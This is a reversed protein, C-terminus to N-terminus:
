FFFLFILFGLLWSFIVEKLSLGHSYKRLVLIRFSKENINKDSTTTVVEVVIKDGQKIKKEEFFATLNANKHFKGRIRTQNNGAPYARVSYLFKWLRKAPFVGDGNDELELSIKKGAECPPLEKMWKAPVAMGQGLDSKTVVKSLVNNIGINKHHNKSNTAMSIM